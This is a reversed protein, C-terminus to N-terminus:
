SRGDKERSQTAHARKSHRRHYRRSIRQSANRCTKRQALPPHVKYRSDFSRLEVDSLCLNHPCVSATVDIGRSKVRRIMDVAGMTSVPGVHLRGETAEALRVDRAVALDEAETPLGKLGLLLSVQGDHMMGGEALEPVEPRDFIPLDFM